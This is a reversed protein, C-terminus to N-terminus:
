GVDPEQVASNVEATRSERTSGGRVEKGKEKREGTRKEEGQDRREVMEEISRLNKIEESQCRSSQETNSSVMQGRARHRRGHMGRRSPSKSVGAGKL